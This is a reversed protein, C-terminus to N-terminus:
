RRHMQFTRVYRFGARSRLQRGYFTVLAHEDHRHLRWDPSDFLEDVLALRVEDDGVWRIISRSAFNILCESNPMRQIRAILSMPLGSYGFPDIFAFTSPPRLGKQGIRDLERAMCRAFEGNKVEYTVWTPLTHQATFAALESNLSTFRTLDEEIFLFHLACLPAHAQLRRNLIAARLAVLPSGDEGGEYRGPGAFGDIYLLRASVQTMIPLWADLHRKLIIHKARTHPSLPWITGDVM